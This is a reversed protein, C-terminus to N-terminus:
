GDDRLSPAAAAPRQWPVLRSVSLVCGLAAFGSGLWLAMEPGRSQAMTYCLAVLAAGTSQGTLRSAAIIGSAGGSRGPPAAGMIARLNPSQFFGFGAGCLAMRWIIQPDSPNAGMMALAAMGTALAALGFGGLIGAPYKDSLPGAILATVAVVAPWPTILFGTATQSHGLVNQFLFPLAVFALGQTTFSCAATASSLAFAPQKFLDVALVPAKQGRQRWLLTAGSVLAGGWELAPEWWAAGHSLSGIGWILLAFFLGCCLAAVGDFRHGGRSTEPLSRWALALGLLGAPVNILFLWHWSAVSLIVSATSPGITFAVAVVLANMGAGKGLMRAPYIFRILAMNVSMLAAAGFGQLARAAILAPLSWALGCALSTLTFLILGGLYIRRHGIIDGLAALPLLASIMALQYSTVLWIASAADTGTDGAIGPLATNVIATDLTAMGVAVLVATMAEVRERQPLGDRGPRPEPRGSTM